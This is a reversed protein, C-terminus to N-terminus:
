ACQNDVWLQLYKEPLKGGSMAKVNRLLACVDGRFEDTAKIWDRPHNATVAASLAELQLLSDTAPGVRALAAPPLSARILGIPVAQNFETAGYHHLALLRWDKDFVPSGSSGGETNVRYQLRQGGDTLTSSPDTSLALKIPQGRPHQLIAVMPLPVLSPQTAPLDIWGRPATTDPASEDGVPRALRLMLYDLGGDGGTVSATSSALLWPKAPDDAGLLGVSTGDSTGGRGTSRFDFRASVASAPLTGGPLGPLVHANTLIADPGVLFGTGEARDSIDIRCVRNRMLGLTAPWLAADLFGLDAQLIKEFDANRVPVDTTRATSTQLDVAPKNAYQAALAQVDACQPKDRAVATVLEAVRGNQRAWEVADFARKKFPGPAVVDDLKVGLDFQTPMAFDGEGYSSAIAEVLQKMEPGTM